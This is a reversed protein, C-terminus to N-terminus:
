NYQYKWYIRVHNDAVERFKSLWRKSFLFKMIMDVSIITGKLQLCGM